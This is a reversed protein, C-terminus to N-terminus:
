LKGRFKSWYLAIPLLNDRVGLSKHALNFNLVRLRELYRRTSVAPLFILKSEKPVKNWLSMSKKLHYHAITAVDFVVNSVGIDDPKSRFFREQSVGHKILLEQPIPLHQTHHQSHISRLINAIGQAKGLHSAFHDATVNRCNVVELLLYYVNSVTEEAYNEMQKTSIFNLNQIKRAHILKDFNRKTFKTKKLVLSLESIVPHSPLLSNNKDFLKTVVEEWFKLRMLSIKHDIATSSPIRSIEINFARITLADRRAKESM